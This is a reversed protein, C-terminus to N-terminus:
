NSRKWLRLKKWAQVMYKSKIKKVSGKGTQLVLLMRLAKPIKFEEWRKRLHNERKRRFEFGTCITSFSIVNKGNEKEISLVKGCAPLPANQSGEVGLKVARICTKDHIDWLRATGDDGCTMFRPKSRHMALGWLEGVYHGQCVVTVPRPSNDKFYSNKEDDKMSKDFLSRGNGGKNGAIDSDDSSDKDKTETKGEGEVQAVLDGSAIYKYFASSIRKNYYDLDKWMEFEQLEETADLLRAHNDDADDAFASEFKKSCM